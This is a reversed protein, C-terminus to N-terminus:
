VVSKRDEELVARGSKPKGNDDFEINNDFDLSRIVQGCNRCIYNGQFQGGSFKLIIEKELITKEKPNLFAQIQLREHVCLLHESCLNCNIWNNDRKGQYQNFKETLKLFREDDDFIKRVAVFDAVHKCTNRDPKQGSNLRNYELLMAIKRSDVYQKNNAALRAKAILVGDKGAAVQLYEPYEKLLYNVQAIDSDALSLNIRKFDELADALRVQNIIEKLFPPNELFFNTEPKKEKQENVVERMKNLTTIFQAQYKDIKKLLVNIIDPTLELEEFGYQDLVAFTDGIGLAPITTGEIYDDIPINGLTKGESDLLIIDNANGVEKPGGLEKLITKMTKRTLQGRGSDVAINNSRSSGVYPALKAPFLMYNNLSAAEDGLFTQKKREAGKRYTTSLAREIGYPVQHFIPVPIMKKGSPILTTDGTYGDIKNIFDIRNDEETLEPYTVRFIESDKIANWIPKSEGNAKWPSIYDQLFQRTKNWFRSEGGGVMDSGVETTADDNMKSLEQNFNTFYVEEPDTKSEEIMQQELASAYYEKKKIRLIPRGMAVRAKQILDSLYMASISKEGRITGDENFEISAQKLHFLTEVLVRIARIAKPDKQLSTDISSIFDNLADIKQISDPIRQEFSAAEKIIKPKTITVFGIEEIEDEEEAEEEEEEEEKKEEEEEEEIEKKDEVAISEENSKEETQQSISIVKFPEDSPIGIFDFSITEIEESEPDKIDISDNEKDVKTIIANKKYMAGTEDFLDVKNQIRFDQQEVFSEFDRRKIIYVATVGDEEDFGDDTMDFDQVMNSVGFPKVSMRDADNYYVIGETRGYKSDIVIHDGLMPPENEDHLSPNLNDTPAIQVSSEIAGEIIAEDDIEDDQAVGEEELVGIQASTAPADSLSANEENIDVIENNPDDPGQISM